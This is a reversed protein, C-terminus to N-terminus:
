RDEPRVDDQRAIEALLAADREVTLCQVVAATCFVPSTICHHGSWSGDASQVRALRAGIKARWREWEEGGHVVLAESTLLYSLYEEGGNNGFGALLREDDLRGLSSEYRQNADALARARDAGVGARQLNEVTVPADEPLVGERVATAVADAAAKAESAAARQAGSWGYLEVGAGDEAAARGSAPDLNGKQHERARDLVGADVQKGVARAVELAATSLASQLVPAWGGGGRWGGDGGQSSQLKGLCADLAADVPGRLPDDEGLHALVRALCQATMATDILGGLKSQIQTGQLTTIKPGEPAERVVAVLRVVARRVAARHEGAAPTHGARLLAMTSFATTAPDTPVAHPDRVDQRAHSGAGWGGNPHQAQILWAIGRAAVEGVPREAAGAQPGGGAPDRPPPAEEAGAVCAVAVAALAGGVLSFPILSSKM